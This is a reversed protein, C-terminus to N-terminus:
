YAGVVDIAYPRFQFIHEWPADDNIRLLEQMDAERTLFASTKRNEAFTAAQGAARVSALLLLSRERTETFCSIVTVDFAAAM